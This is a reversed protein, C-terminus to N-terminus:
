AIGFKDLLNDAVRGRLGQIEIVPLIAVVLPVIRPPHLRMLSHLLLPMARQLSPLLELNSPVMPKLEAHDHIAFPIYLCISVPNLTLTDATSLDMIGFCQGCGRRTGQLKISTTMMAWGSMDRHMGGVLRRM